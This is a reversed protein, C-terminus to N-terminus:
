PVAGTFFAEPSLERWEKATMEVLVDIVADDPLEAARFIGCSPSTDTLIEKLRDYSIM